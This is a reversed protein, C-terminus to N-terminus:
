FHQSVEVGYTRPVGTTWRLRGPVYGGASDQESYDPHQDAINKVFAAFQTNRITVAARFDVLYFSSVPLPMTPSTTTSVRNGVYSYQARLDLQPVGLPIRYDVSANATWPAVGQIQSGPPPYSILAGPTLIKADNYGFGGTVTLMPIPVASFDFEAGRSRAAGSNLTVQFGCSLPLLERIHTWNIWFLASNVQYRHDATLAKAGLEYSWVWDPGYSSFSQGGLGLAALASACFVPDPPIQGNGPRFGKAADAYININSNPRFELLFKPTFVHDQEYSPYLTADAYTPAGFGSGWGIATSQVREFSYRGGFTFSWRPTFKYTLEGYIARSDQTTVVTGASAIDSGNPQGTFPNTYQAFGPFDGVEVFSNYNRNYFLGGVFQLPFDWGSAFRLENNVIHITQFQPYPAPIVPTDFVYASFESIDEWDGTHRNMVDFAETFTGLSTTYEATVGTIWWRDLIGEAIDFHRYNTLNNPTYDGLPLGNTALSQYIARPRITLGEIPQWLLQADVGYYGGQASNKQELWPQFPPGGVNPWLRNIYGGDQGRYPTIRMALTDTVLPVNFIGYVEYGNSGGDISTGNAYVFGTFHNLEPANTIMRVAGGMSRAGYLTGQPGRLVEIRNIDVVRPSLSIPIPLDDLYFGTTDSGQIGRIAITRDDVNGYTGGYSFNLNSVQTAFDNFSNIEAAELTAQPIATISMPVDLAVESRRTATVVVETLANQGAPQSASQSAAAASLTNTSDPGTINETAATPPDAAAVHALLMAQVVTGWLIATRYRM